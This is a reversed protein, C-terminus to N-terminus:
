FYRLFVSCRCLFHTKTCKFEYAEVMTGIITDGVMKRRQKNRNKHKKVLYLHGDNNENGDEVQEENFLSQVFVNSSNLLMNELHVPFKDRNKAIMSEATYTVPGAFHKILFTKPTEHRRHQIGFYSANKQGRKSLKSRNHVYMKTLGRLFAEDTQESKANSKEDMFQFISIFQKASGKGILDVCPQNSPPDIDSVDIGEKEYIALEGKFVHDCFLLQLVENAYNICLQEFSSYSRNNGGVGAGIGAIYVVLVVFFKRQHYLKM